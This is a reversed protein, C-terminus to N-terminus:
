DPRKPFLRIKIPDSHEDVVDYTDRVKNKVSEDLDKWHTVIDQLLVALRNTLSFGRGSTGRLYRGYPTFSPDRKSGFLQNLQEEVLGSYLFRKLKTILLTGSKPGKAVYFANRDNEEKHFRDMHKKIKKDDSYSTMHVILTWPFSTRVYECLTEDTEPMEGEQKPLKFDLIVAHYPYGKDNALELLKRAAVVSGATDIVSESFVNSLLNRLMLMSNRIDEVILIRFM